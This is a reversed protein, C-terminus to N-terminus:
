DEDQEKWEPAYIEVFEGLDDGQSYRALTKIDQLQRIKSQWFGRSVKSYPENKTVQLVLEQQLDEVIDELDISPSEEFKLAIFDPAYNEFLFDQVLVRYNDEDIINKTENLFEDVGSDYQREIVRSLTDNPLYREPIGKEKLFVEFHESFLESLGERFATKLQDQQM